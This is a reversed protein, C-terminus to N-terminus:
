AQRPAPLIDAETIKGAKKEELVQVVRTLIDPNADIMRLIDRRNAGRLEDLAASLRIAHEEDALSVSLTLLGRWRVRVRYGSGQPEVPM